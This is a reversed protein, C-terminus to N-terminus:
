DEFKLSIGPACIRIRAVPYLSRMRRALVTLFFRM